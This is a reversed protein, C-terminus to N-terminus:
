AKKKARKKGGGVPRSNALFYQLTRKAQQSPMASVASAAASASATPATTTSCPLLAELAEPPVPWWDSCFDRCMGYKRGDSTECRCYCRQCVGRRTVVFYVNNSRHSRGLNFCFRSTSRLLCAHEGVLLRVFRQGTFQPPLAQDVLALAPGNAELSEQRGEFEDETTAPSTGPPPALALTPERAFSRISLAHLHERLSSLTGVQIGELGRGLSFKYKPLYHRDDGRGKGSWPMRLGNSRYVTSDVVDEWPSGAERKPVIGWCDHRLDALAELAKARLAVATDADVLLDPWVLHCGLKVADGDAKCESCVCVLCTAHRDDSLKQVVDAVRRVVDGVGGTMEYFESAREQDRFRVDADVFMKFVQTKLEVVCPRRDPHRVLSAAYANLFAANSEDPVFLKGGDLLLHTPRGSHGPRDGGRYGRERAWDYVHQSVHPM